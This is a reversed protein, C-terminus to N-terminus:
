SARLTLLKKVFRPFAALSGREGKESLSEAHDGGQELGRAVHQDGGGGDDAADDLSRLDPVGLSGLSGLVPVLM